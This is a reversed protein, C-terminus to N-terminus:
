PTFQITTTVGSLTYSSTIQGSAGITYTAGTPNAFEASKIYGATELQALTGTFYKGNNIATYMNTASVLIRHNAEFTRMNAGDTMKAFRPIAIMALIGIIAVVVILEILTFGKQKKM